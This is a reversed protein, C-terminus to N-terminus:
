TRESVTSMAETFGDRSSSGSKGGLLAAGDDRILRHPLRVPTSSGVAPFGVPVSYWVPGPAAPLSDAASCNHEIRFSTASAGCTATDSHTCQLHGSCKGLQRVSPSSRAGTTRAKKVEVSRSAGNGDPPPQRRLRGARWCARAKGRQTPVIVFTDLKESCRERSKVAPATRDCGAM